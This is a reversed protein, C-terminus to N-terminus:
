LVLFFNSKRVNEPLDPTLAERDVAIWLDTEKVTVKFSDMGAPCLEQRYDRRSDQM